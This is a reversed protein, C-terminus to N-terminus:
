LRYENRAFGSAATTRTDETEVFSGPDDVTSDEPPNIEVYMEKDYQTNNEEIKKAYQNIEEAAGSATEQQQDAPTEAYKRSCDILMPDINALIRILQIYEDRNFTLGKNPCKGDSSWMRIDLKKLGQNWSIINIEINSRNSKRISGLRNCIDRPVGEERKQAM